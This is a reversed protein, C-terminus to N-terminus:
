AIRLLTGIWFPHTITWIQTPRNFSINEGSVTYPRTIKALIHINLPINKAVFTYELGLTQSDQTCVSGLNESLAGGGIPSYGGSCPPIYWIASGEVCYGLNRELGLVWGRPCTAYIKHKTKINIKQKFRSFDPKLKKNRFYLSTILIRAKFVICISINCINKHENNWFNHHFLHIKSYPPWKPNEYIQLTLFFHLGKKKEDSSHELHSFVFIDSKVFM